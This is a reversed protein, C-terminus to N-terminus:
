LCLLREIKSTSVQDNHSNIIKTTLSYRKHWEPFNPSVYSNNNPNVLVDLAGGKTEIYEKQFNTINKLIFNKGEYEYGLSYRFISSDVGFPDKKIFRVSGRAQNGITYPIIRQNVAHNVSYKTWFFSVVVIILYFYRNFNDLGLEFPIIALCILILFSIWFLKNINKVAEENLNGEKRYKKVLEKMEKPWFLELFMVGGNM